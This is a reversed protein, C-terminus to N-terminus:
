LKQRFVNRLWVYGMAAVTLILLISLSQFGDLIAQGTESSIQEIVFYIAYLILFVSLLKAVFLFTAKFLEVSKRRMVVEKDDDDMHTSLLVGVAERSLEVVSHVNGALNLLIFLEVFAICFFFLLLFIM